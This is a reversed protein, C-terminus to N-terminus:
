KAALGQLPKDQSGKDGIGRPLIGVVVADANRLHPRHNNASAQSRKRQDLSLIDTPSSRLIPGAV